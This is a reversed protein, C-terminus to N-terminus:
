PSKTLKILDSVPLPFGRGGDDWNVSYREGENNANGIITVTGRHTPDKRLAVRDNLNIRNPDPPAPPAVFLRKFYARTEIRAPVYFPDTIRESVILSVVNVLEWGEAGAKDLEEKHATDGNFTLVHYEFRPNM